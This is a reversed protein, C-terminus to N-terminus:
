RWDDIRAALRNPNSLRQNGLVKGTMGFPTGRDYPAFGTVPPATAYEM